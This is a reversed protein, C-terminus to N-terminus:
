IFKLEKLKNVVFAAKEQATGGPVLIGGGRPPPPMSGVFELRGGANLKAAEASLEAAGWKAVPAKKSAMKGKLSPLRPENIEKIVSIVAPLDVELSDTGDETAREIKALKDDVSAFKRVFAVSPWELWAGLAPAVSGSENDNSQKGCLVLGVPKSAHLKRIGLSLVYSTGLNDTNEFSPDSLLVGEECGLALAARISEEARAPGLSLVTVTSGAIKEKTRLAEEVAYEDWPNLGWPLGDTKLKGTAADIPVQTAAPTQKVCVVIHM